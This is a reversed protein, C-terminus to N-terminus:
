LFFKAEKLSSICPEYSSKNDCAKHKFLINTKVGAAIGANIDSIKDGILLSQNMDIKHKKQAKLLMGPNPKRDNSDKLFEGIGETPHFPCYFVDDINCGLKSLSNSMYQTLIQFDNVSYFGKGIGAQNTIIIILYDKKMAYKILIEIDKIFIFDEIKYVHGYDINIVGDRDLFLAKRYKMYSSESRIFAETGILLIKLV